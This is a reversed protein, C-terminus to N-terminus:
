AVVELFLIENETIPIHLGYADDDPADWEYSNERSGEVSVQIRYTDEERIPNNYRHTRDETITTTDSFVVEGNSLRTVTTTVTISRGTGNHVTLDPMKSNDLVDLCGASSLAVVGSIHLFARRSLPSSM